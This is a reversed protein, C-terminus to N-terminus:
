LKQLDFAFKVIAFKTYAAATSIKTRKLFFHSKGASAAPSREKENNIETWSITLALPGQISKSQRISTAVNFTDTYQV